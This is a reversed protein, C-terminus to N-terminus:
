EYMNMNSRGNGNNKWVHDHVHMSPKLLYLARKGKSEITYMVASATNM